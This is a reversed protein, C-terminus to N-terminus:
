EPDELVRAYAPAGAPSDAGAKAGRLYV